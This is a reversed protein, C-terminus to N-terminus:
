KLFQQFILNSNNFIVNTPIVLHQKKGLPDGDSKFKTEIM